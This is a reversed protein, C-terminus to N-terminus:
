RHFCGINNFTYVVGFKTLGYFWGAEDRMLVFIDGPSLWGIDDKYNSMSRWCKIDFKVVWLQQRLFKMRKNAVVHMVCHWIKYPM